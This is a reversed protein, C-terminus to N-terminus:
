GIPELLGENRRILMGTDQLHCLNDEPSLNRASLLARAKDSGSIVELYHQYLYEGTHPLLAKGGIIDDVPLALLYLDSDFRRLLVEATRLDLEGVESSIARLGEVMIAPVGLDSLQRIIGVFAIRDNLGSYRETM